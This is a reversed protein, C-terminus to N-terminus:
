IQRDEIERMPRAIYRKTLNFGQAKSNNRKQTNTVVYASQTVKKAKEEIFQM